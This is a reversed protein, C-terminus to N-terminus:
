PRSTSTTAGPRIIGIGQEIVIKTGLPASLRQVRDLIRRGVEPPALYPIGRHAMRVDDTIQVPHLRIEALQGRDFRTIAVLSEYKVPPSNAEGRGRPGMGSLGVTDMQRFFEGLGYFIPKGKYIEIGRLTHVGTGQFLDAGADITARAFVHLYDAISPNTDLGETEAINVGREGGKADRFHHAHIAVTMFDSRMKGERVAALIDELDRQNMEFSYHPEKANPDLRFREGLITIQSETFPPAYFGTGNPFAARLNVISQWLAPPSVFTRTTRLASQGGRGPWEGRGPEAMVNQAFSSATAVMGVRGKATSVFRASRAAWYSEGSGAAMVGARDLHDNTELLGEYGYEGIHNNSRAVLDFGMAKLDPAVEPVGAFGGPGSGKFKRGDIINGEYNGTGVDADRILKLVGQFGAEPNQSQPYAVILDGVTAMTFGDRVTTALERPEIAGDRRGAAVGQQAAPQPAALMVTFAAGSALIAWRSYHRM